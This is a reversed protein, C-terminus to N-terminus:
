AWRHIGRGTYEEGKACVGAGGKLMESRKNAWKHVLENKEERKFLRAHTAMRGGREGWGGYDGTQTRVDSVCQLVCKTNNMGYVLNFTRVGHNHTRALKM